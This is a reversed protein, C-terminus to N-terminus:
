KVHPPAVDQCKLLAGMQRIALVRRVRILAKQAVSDAMLQQREQLPVVIGIDLTRQGMQSFLALSVGGVELLGRAPLPFAEDLRHRRCPEGDSHRRKKALGLGQLSLHHPRGDLLHAAIQVLKLIAM